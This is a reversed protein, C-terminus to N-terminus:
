RRFTAMVADNQWLPRRPRGKAWRSGCFRARISTKAAAILAPLRCGGAPKRSPADTSADPARQRM